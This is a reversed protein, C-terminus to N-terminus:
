RQKEGKIKVYSYIIAVTLTVLLSIVMVIIFSASRLIMGGLATILGSVALAIGASRNALYWHEDTDTCFPMRLGMFSNKKTKPMLNGIVIFLAGIVASEIIYLISGTGSMVAPNGMMILVFVCLANLMVFIAIMITDMVDINRATRSNDDTSSRMMFRRIMLYILTVALIIGPFLFAEYKSGYRDVSGDFSFHAAVTDPLFFLVAVATYILPIVALILLLITKIKKM